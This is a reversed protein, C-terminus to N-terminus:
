RIQCLETVWYKQDETWGGGSSRQRKSPGQSPGRGESSAPGGQRTGYKVKKEGKGQTASSSLEQLVQKQASASDGAFAEPMKAKKARKKVAGCRNNRTARLALTGVKETLGELNESRLSGPCLHQEWSVLAEVDGQLCPDKGTAGQPAELCWLEGQNSGEKSDKSSDGTLFHELLEPKNVTKSISSVHTLSFFGRWM